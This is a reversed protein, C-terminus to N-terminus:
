MGHKGTIQNSELIQEKEERMQSVYYQINEGFFLLFDSIFIGGYAEKMEMTRFEDHEGSRYHLFVRNGRRNQYEIFVKDYFGYKQQLFVPFRRYFSFYIKEATFDALYTDSLKM